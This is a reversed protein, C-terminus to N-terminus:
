LLGGQLITVFVPKGNLENPQDGLRARSTVLMLAQVEAIQAYRHLQRLVEPQSGDVKVELALGPEVMFDVVSEPSLRYERLFAIHGASLVSAIGDQLQKENSHRFRHRLLLGGVEGASAHTPTKL